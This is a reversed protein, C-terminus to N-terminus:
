TLGRELCYARIDQNGQPIPQRITRDGMIFMVIREHSLSSEANEVGTMVGRRAKSLFEAM